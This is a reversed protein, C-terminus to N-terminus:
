GHPTRLFSQTLGPGRPSGYASNAGAASVSLNGFRSRGTAGLRAGSASRSLGGGAGSGNGAAGGFAFSGGSDVRHLSPSYQSGPPAPPSMPGAGVRSRASTELEKLKSLAEQVHSRRQTAATRTTRREAATSKARMSAVEEHLKSMREQAAALDAAREAQLAELQRKFTAAQAVADAARQRREEELTTRLTQGDLWAMCCGRAYARTLLDSSARPAHPMPGLPCAAVPPPSGVQLDRAFEAMERKQATESMPLQSTVTSLQASMDAMAEKHAEARAKLEAETTERLQKLQGALETTSTQAGVCGVCAAHALTRRRTGVM